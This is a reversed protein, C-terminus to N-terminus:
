VNLALARRKNAEGALFAIHEVLLKKARRFVADVMQASLPLRFSVEKWGPIRMSRM